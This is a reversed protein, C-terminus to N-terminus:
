FDRNAFEIGLLPFWRSMPTIGKLPTEYNRVLVEVRSRIPDRIFLCSEKCLMLVAHSRVHVCSIRVKWM